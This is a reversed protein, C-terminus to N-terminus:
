SDLKEESGRTVRFCDIFAMSIQSFDIIQILLHHHISEWRHHPISHHDHPIYELNPHLISSENHQTDNPSLYQDVILPAM